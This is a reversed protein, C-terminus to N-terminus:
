RGSYDLLGRENGGVEVGALEGTIVFFLMENEESNMAHAQDNDSCMTTM